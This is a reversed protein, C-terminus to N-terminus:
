VGEAIELIRKNDLELSEILANYLSFSSSDALPIL